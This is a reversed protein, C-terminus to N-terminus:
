EGTYTTETTWADRPQAHLDWYADAIRAPDFPTGPVILGCITVGAVHIGRPALDAALTEVMNRLAAKGLSLSAFDPSPWQSFGGGTMLITGGGAREMGPAVAQAAALAAAVNIRLTDVLVEPDLEAAHDQRMAAANYVLATPDGHASAVGALAARLGALDSADAAHASAAIGDGDLAAVDAGLRDADRALLAAHFGERGFRRALSAGLGPGSGVIACVPRQPM